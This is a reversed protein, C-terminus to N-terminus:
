DDVEVLRFKPDFKLEFGNDLSVEWGHKGRGIERVFNASHNDTVHQRIADPIIAEPVRAKKCDVDKWEGRKDFSLTVGDSFLVDYTKDFLDRDVSAFSIKSDAFHTGIFKLAQAPLESKDIPKDDACALFPLSALALLLVIAKKM